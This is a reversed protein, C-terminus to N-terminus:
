VSPDATSHDHPGPDIAPLGRGLTRRTLRPTDSGPQCSTLTAQQGVSDEVDRGGVRRGEGSPGLGRGSLSHYEYPSFSGLTIGPDGGSAEHSRDKRAAPIGRCTRKVSGLLVMYRLLMMM